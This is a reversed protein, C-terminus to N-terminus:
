SHMFSLFFLLTPLSTISLLTCILLYCPNSKQIHANWKDFAKMFANCRYALLLPIAMCCADWGRNKVYGDPWGWQWGDTQYNVQSIREAQWSLRVVDKHTQAKTWKHKIKGAQGTCECVYARITIPTHEIQVELVIDQAKLMEYLVKWIDDSCPFIMACICLWM